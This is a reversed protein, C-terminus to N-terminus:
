KLFQADIIKSVFDNIYSVNFNKEGLRASQSSALKDTYQSLPYITVDQSGRVYQTIIPEFSVNDITLKNTKCDKTVNYHLLGGIVRAPTNQQSIFNGLSYAVLTKSGDARDIFEVPEIVHPHHGIIVDAGWDSMKKALERQAATPVTSYENGWHINVLVMDCLEKAAKIKREITQEDSSYIIELESGSPLSLGNTYQTVGVLGIKLDTKKLTNM